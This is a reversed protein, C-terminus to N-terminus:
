QGILLNLDSFFELCAAARDHVDRTHFDAMQDFRLAECLCPKAPTRNPRCCRIVYAVRLVVIVVCFSIPPADLVVKVAHRWTLTRRVAKKELLCIGFVKM